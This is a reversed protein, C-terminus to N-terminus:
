FTRAPSAGARYTVSTVRLRGLAFKDAVGSVGSVGSVTSVSSVGSVTSVGSVGFGRKEL